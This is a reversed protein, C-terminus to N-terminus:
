RGAEPHAARDRRVRRHAQAPRHPRPRHGPGPDASVRKSQDLELGLHMGGQLDLGRKLPVRKVVTDRIIGDAGRERQTVERPILSVASAILMAAILGLRTRLNTVIM